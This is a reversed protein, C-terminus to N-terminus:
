FNKEVFVINENNKLWLDKDAKMEDFSFWKYRTGNIKFSDKKPLQESDFSCNYFTHHYTKTMNASVSRKTFDEEKTSIIEIPSLNLTEKAFIKIGSIDDDKTRSYPFLYTKWRKDKKLLFRGHSDKLLLLSFKHENTCATIDKLFAEVSYKSNYISFVLITIYGCLMLIALIIIFLPLEKINVNYFTFTVTIIYGCLSLFAPLIDASSKIFRKRQHLLDQLKGEDINM